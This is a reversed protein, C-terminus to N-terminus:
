KAKFIHLALLEDEISEALIEFLSLRDDGFKSWHERASYDLWYLYANHVALRLLISEFDDRRFRQTFM